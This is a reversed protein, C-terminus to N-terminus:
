LREKVQIINGDKITWHGLENQEFSRNWILDGWLGGNCSHYIHELFHGYIKEDIRGVVSDPHLTLSVKSSSTQAIGAAPVVMFMVLIFAKRAMAM